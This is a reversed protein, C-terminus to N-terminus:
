FRACPASHETGKTGGEREEHGETRWPFGPRDIQSFPTPRTLQENLVYGRVNRHPCGLLPLQGTRRHYCRPAVPLSGGGVAFSRAWRSHVRNPRTVRCPPSWGASSPSTQLRCPLLSRSCSGPWGPHYPLARESLDALFRPSGARYTLVPLLRFPQAIARFLRTRRFPRLRCHALVV